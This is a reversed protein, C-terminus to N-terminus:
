VPIPAPERKVHIEGSELLKLVSDLVGNIFAGSEETGYRKGIDIAENIAVKSPIDGLFCLEYIAIRIVNRDVCAMRGVRWNSSIQELISDITNKNRLVGKSLTLFFPVMNKSPKFNEVFLEILDESTEGQIDMFFLAQMAFERSRRRYGM